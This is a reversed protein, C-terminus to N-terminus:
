GGAMVYIGDPALARKYASLPHYGNAALILDYEQGNQTFDEQTYDIV